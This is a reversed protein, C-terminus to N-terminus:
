QSPDLLPDDHDLPEAWAVGLREGAVWKITASLSRDGIWVVVKNEVPLNTKIKMGAGFASIDCVIASTKTGATDLWADIVCSLRDVRRRDAWGPVSIRMSADICPSGGRAANQLMAIHMEFWDNDALDANAM